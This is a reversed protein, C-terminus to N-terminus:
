IGIGVAAGKNGVFKMEEAQEWLFDYIDKQMQALESNYIEVCFMKEEKYTYTAYVDNYILVEFNIRLKEPSIYRCEAFNEILETVETYDGWSSKNSLDRIKIRNEVMERRVKEAFEVPVFESLHEMELVRVLGEARTINYSVQKLGEVGEYYLVKSEGLNQRMLGELQGVLDPLGQRLVEVEQEKSTVLQGFKGPHTAGFKMGREDVKLEVLQKVQLKDLLRYAKTRGMRLERSLELAGVFGRKLLYLYVKGEEDSLGYPKVLNIYNDTQDSM